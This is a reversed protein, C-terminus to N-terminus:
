SRKQKIFMPLALMAFQGVSDFMTNVFLNVPIPRAVLEIGPVNILLLFLAASLGMSFSIPVGITLLIFLPLLLYPGVVDM